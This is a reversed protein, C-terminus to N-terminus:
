NHKLMRVRRRCTVTMIGKKTKTKNDNAEDDNTERDSTESNNFSYRAVNADRQEELKKGWEHERQLIM